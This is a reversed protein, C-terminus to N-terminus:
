DLSNYSFNAVSSVAGGIREGIAGFLFAFVSPRVVGLTLRGGILLGAAALGIVM